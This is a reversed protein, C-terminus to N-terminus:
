EAEKNVSFLQILAADWSGKADILDHDIELTLSGNEFVWLNPVEANLEYADEETSLSSFYKNELATLKSNLDSDEERDAAVAFASDVIYVKEVDYVAAYQVILNLNTASVSDSPSAFYVYVKSDSKIIEDLDDFTTEEFLTNEVITSGAAQWKSVFKEEKNPLNLLVTAVIMVVAVALIIILEKRLTFKVKSYKKIAM